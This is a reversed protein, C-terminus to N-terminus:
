RAVDGAAAPPLLDRFHPSCLAPVHYRAQIRANAAEVQTADLVVRSVAILCPLRADSRRWTRTLCSRAPPSM